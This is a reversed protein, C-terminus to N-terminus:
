QAESNTSAYNFSYIFSITIRSYKLLFNEPIQIGSLLVLHGERFILGTTLNNMDNMTYVSPGYRIFYSISEEKIKVFGGAHYRFNIRGDYYLLMPEVSLSFFDRFSFDFEASGGLFHYGDSYKGGGTIKPNIEINKWSFSRNLSTTYLQEALSETYLSSKFCISWADKIDINVLGYYVEEIGISVGSGYYEL